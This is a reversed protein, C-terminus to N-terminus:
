AKAELIVPSIATKPKGFVVKPYTKIQFKKGVFKKTDKGWAKKLVELAPNDPTYILQRGKCEVLFNVVKYPKDNQGKKVEIKGEDLFVVFDGDVANDGNLYNELEGLDVM